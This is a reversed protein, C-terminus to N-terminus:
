TAPEGRTARRTSTSASCREAGREAMREEALVEAGEELLWTLQVYTDGAEPRITALQTRSNDPNTRSVRLPAEPMPGFGDEDLAVEITIPQNGKRHIHACFSDGDISCIGRLLENAFEALGHGDAFWDVGPLPMGPPLLQDVAHRTEEYVGLRVADPDHGAHRYFDAQYDALEALRWDSAVVELYGALEALAALDLQPQEGM